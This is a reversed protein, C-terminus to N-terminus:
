PKRKITCGFAKSEFKTVAQGAVLQALAPGLDDVGGHYRVLGNTGVVFVEPTRQAGYLDAVKSGDDRLMPFGFSQAADAKIDSVPENQNANVGVFAVKDGYQKYLEAIPARAQAVYPCRCSLFLVVAGKADKGDKTKSKLYSDLSRPQGTDVSKLTFPPAKDGARPVAAPPIDPKSSPPTVGLPPREELPENARASLSAFGLGLLSAAFVASRFVVSHVLPRM